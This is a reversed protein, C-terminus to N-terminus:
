WGTKDNSNRARYGMTNVKMELAGWYGSRTGPVGASFRGCTSRFEGMKRVPVQATYGKDLGNTSIIKVVEGIRAERGSYLTNAPFETGNPRKSM